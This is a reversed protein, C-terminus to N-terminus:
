WRGSAGGGGFGGGGGGFGGWGGGGGGKGRRDFVSSVLASLWNALGVLVFVFTAAAIQAAIELDRGSAFWAIAGVAGAMVGAGFLPGVVWRLLEGVAVLFVVLWGPPVDALHDGAPEDDTRNAITDDNIQGRGSSAEPTGPQGASDPTKIPASVAAETGAAQAEILGALRLVGAKIGGFFDGRKFLPTINEDIVRRAIADPIVGELGYGVEIRVVRDNKAVLLLLGDDKGKRGLKWQEVVRISFQEIAEPGTTPVLLVALQSGTRAELKRLDNELAGTQSSSLTGTLDTVRTKLAPVPVEARAALSLALALGVLLGGLWRCSM